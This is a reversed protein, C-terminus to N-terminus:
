KICPLVVMFRGSKAEITFKGDVAVNSL